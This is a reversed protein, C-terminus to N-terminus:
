RYEKARLLQDGDICLPSAKRKTASKGSEIARRRASRLQYIPWNLYKPACLGNAVLFEADPGNAAKLWVILACLAPDRTLTTVNSQALWAGRQGFRNEGRETYGWVSKATRLVKAESLPPLFEANRTHAVDLLAGFDDCHHAERMCHAFLSKNRIGKTVARTPVVLAPAIPTEIEIGRLIPLRDLDDLGGEIFQYDGKIGHSPPAVIVGGGLIDIPRDPEPRIQREEGNNRYWAQHHGRGSRVIVPTTGHRDLADILVRQDPTDVDVVTIGTRQGAMFGLATADPFKRTIESSGRLGFKAYHKVMPVKGDHSVRVPFTAIGHAAYTPQWNRFSASSSQTIIEPGIM